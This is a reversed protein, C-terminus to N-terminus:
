ANPIVLRTGPDLRRLRTLGNEDAILRWQTADNYEQFAIWPLSDGERVIWVREGGVGGSTPNQRPYYLEDKAQTLTLDLVARVPVGGTPLFLTLRQSISAIVGEFISDGWHFRVTPPRGKKNKPDTLKPDIFTWQYIQNTYAKRVDKDPANPDAYTDFYLQLKLSTSGGGTFEMAPVNEKPSNNQKWNNSKSFTLEKPNFAVKLKEGESGDKNLRCITAKEASTGSM